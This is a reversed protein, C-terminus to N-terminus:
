MPRGRGRQGDAEDCRRAVGDPPLGHAKGDRGGHAERRLQDLGRREGGHDAEDFQGAFALEGGGGGEAGEGNVQGHGREVEREAKRQRLHAAPEFPPQMDSTSSFSTTLRYPWLVTSSPTESVTSGPSIMAMMPREPEPLLVMSRQTFPSSGIWPPLTRKSPVMTFSGAVSKRLSRWCTPMTNWLKLRKGWRLTSFFM